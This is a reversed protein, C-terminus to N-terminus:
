NVKKAKKATRYGKAWGTKQVQSTRTFALADSEVDEVIVSGAGIVAGDGVSVPAVLASNSGIFANAGIRTHHKDFGDYNCTITGAGINTHAGIYADGIYSLHNVKVGTELTSKKIEVFNGIHAKEGIHAGPRLRAYPGVIAGTEVIAGEIHSFSRIEVGSAIKVGEGFTVFPHVMVDPAIETDHHFFVTEPAILSVGNELAQHRLRQQVIAEASALQARSNVGQVETEEAEIVACSKGAERAIKVIDTLYYEGKSNNPQVKSLLNKLEGAAIAMVGSNCLGIARQEPTADKFEVIEQLTNDHGLVLRGYEATYKPHMGLVVVAPRTPQELAAAMRKLTAGTILPTDGFLVIIHGKFHDVVDEAAMVAAATGHKGNDQIAIQVEAFTNKAEQQVDEMGPAIVVCALAPDIEAVSDLVHSIMPKGALRHLVKPLASRMRTGKGAALIIAAIPTTKAKDM